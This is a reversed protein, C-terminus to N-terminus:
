KVSKRWTCFFQHYAEPVLEFVKLVASKVNDYKKKEEILLATYAEQAKGVLM